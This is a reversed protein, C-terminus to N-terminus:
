RLRTAAQALPPDLLTLQPPPSIALATARAQLPPRPARGWHPGTQLKSDDQPPM